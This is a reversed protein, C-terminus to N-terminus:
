PTAVLQMLEGLTALKELGYVAEFVLEQRAPPLVGAALDSFKQKLETVTLPDRPDGKPFSRENMFSRGDALTLQVRCPQEAPFRDEFSPELSAKVKPVLRLVREDSLGAPSFQTPTLGGNVVAAAICFPLSHDATERSDIVYKKEDALIEAARRLTFIEITSIDAPNIHHQGVLDLVASIPAHTLAESPFPKISCETIKCTEGLRDTLVRPQWAEGIVEFLGERGEFILAPGKYGERALM